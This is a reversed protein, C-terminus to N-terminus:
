RQEYFKVYSVKQNKFLNNITNEREERDIFNESRFVHELM